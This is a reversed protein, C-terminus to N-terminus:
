KVPDITSISHTGDLLGTDRRFPLPSLFHNYGHCRPENIMKSPFISNRMENFYLAAAKRATRIASIIIKLCLRCIGIVPTAPAWFWPAGAELEKAAPSVTDVNRSSPGRLSSSRSPLAKATVRASSAIAISRKGLITGPCGRNNTLFVGHFYPRERSCSFCRSRRSGHAPCNALSM